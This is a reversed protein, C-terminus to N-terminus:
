EPLYPQDFRCKFANHKKLNMDWYYNILGSIIMLKVWLLRLRGLRYPKSLKKVIKPDFMEERAFYYGLQSFNRYIKKTMSPPMIQIGEVGGKIVTGLYQCGIRQTFRQLYKAIFTSHISEPFGSQVIFGVKKTTETQPLLAIKEFFDKVVGPMADTYLPFIFVVIQANHFLELNDKEKERSALYALCTSSIVHKRFGHLFHEALLTSNSKRKRPSGNFITLLM